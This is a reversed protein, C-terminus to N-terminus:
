IEPNTVDTLPSDPNGNDGSDPSRGWPPERHQASNQDAHRQLLGLDLCTRGLHDGLPRSEQPNGHTLPGWARLTLHCFPLAIRDKRTARRDWRRASCLSARTCRLTSVALMKGCLYSHGCPPRESQEM